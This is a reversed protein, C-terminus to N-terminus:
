GGLEVLAGHVKDHWDLHLEHSSQDVVSWCIQCESLWPRGQIGLFERETLAKRLLQLATQKREEEETM